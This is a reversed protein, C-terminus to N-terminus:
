KFLRIITIIISKIIMGVIFVPWSFANTLMHDYDFSASIALVIFFGIIYSVIGLFIILGTDM